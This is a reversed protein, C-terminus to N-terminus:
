SKSIWCWIKPHCPKNIYRAPVQGMIIKLVRYLFSSTTSHPSHRSKHPARDWGFRHKERLSRAPSQSNQDCARCELSKTYLGMMQSRSRMVRAAARPFWAIWAILALDQRYSELLLIISTVSSRVGELSWFALTREQMSTSSNASLGVKQSRRPRWRSLRMLFAGPALRTKLGAHSKM